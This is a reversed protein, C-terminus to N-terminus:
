PLVKDERRYVTETQGGPLMLVMAEVVHRCNESEDPLNFEPHLHACRDIQAINGRIRIADTPLECNVLLCDRFTLGTVGVCITTHPLLQALNRRVFEDGNSCPPSSNGSFNGENIIAM